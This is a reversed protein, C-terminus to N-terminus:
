QHPLTVADLYGATGDRLGQCAGCTRVPLTSIGRGFGTGEALEELSHRFEEESVPEKANLERVGVLIVPERGDGEYKKWLENEGFFAAM